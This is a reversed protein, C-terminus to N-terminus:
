MLGVRRLFLQVCELTQEKGTETNVVQCEIMTEREPFHWAKEMHEYVEWTADSLDNKRAVLREKIVEPKCECMVFAFLAGEARAAAIFRERQTPDHFTSDVIVRKGERVHRVCQKFIEDYTRQSMEPSYLGQELHEQGRVTSVDHDNSQSVQHGVLKKRIADSRLWILTHDHDVLMQALSSKGSAPLGGILIMCPRHTPLSLLELAVLWYCRAQQTEEARHRASLTADLVRFGAVKARVVARYAAYFAFLDSNEPFSPNAKVLYQQQLYLALDPRGKRWIDMSLFAVDSLPDGFRFQENFEICDLIVFKMSKNGQAVQYVHELRLDGHSDCIYGKEVRAEFTDKLKDFWAYTLEKVRQYVSDSVTVGVHGATQAFNEDVNDRIVHERGFRDIEPGRRAEAHFQVLKHAVRDLISETLTGHEMCYLLSCQDPLRVMEVAWEIIEGFEENTWWEVRKSKERTWFDDCRLWLERTRQKMSVPVVGLYIDPALRANLTVEALCAEFRKELTSFDVFGFNVQKKVKFVRQPLRFVLSLHTQVVDVDDPGMPCAGREDPFVYARADCLARELEKETVDVRM